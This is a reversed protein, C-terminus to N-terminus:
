RGERKNKKLNFELQEIRNVLIEIEGNQERLMSETREKLETMADYLFRMDYKEARASLDYKLNAIEANISNLINELQEPSFNM